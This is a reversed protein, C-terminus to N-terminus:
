RMLVCIFAHCEKIAHCIHNASISTVFSVILPCVVSRFWFRKWWEKHLELYDVGEISIRFRDAIDIEAPSQYEKWEVNRLHGRRYLAFLIEEAFEKNIAKKSILDEACLNDNQFLRLYSDLTTGIETSFDSM